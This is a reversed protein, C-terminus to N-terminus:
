TVKVPPKLNIMKLVAITPCTIPGYSRVPKMSQKSEVEVNIKVRRLKWHCRSVRMGLNPLGQGSAFCRLYLFQRLVSKPRSRSRKAHFSM